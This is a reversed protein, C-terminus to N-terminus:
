AEKTVDLEKMDKFINCITLVASCKQKDFDEYCKLCYPSSLRGQLLSASSYSATSTSYATQPQTSRTGWVTAKIVQAHYKYYQLIETKYKQLAHRNARHVYITKEDSDHNTLDM